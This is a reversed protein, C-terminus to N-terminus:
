SKLAVKQLIDNVIQDVPRTGPIAEFGDRIMRAQKSEHDELIREIEGPEHHTGHEHAQLRRRLTDSDIKLVFVKDFLHYFDKQNSVVAGLFVTEDSALLQEIEPKQWNWAYKTWDVPGAPWDITEGTTKDQLKTTEPLDDTNYASLGREQLEKIVSTKGSGKRGTIFYKGM